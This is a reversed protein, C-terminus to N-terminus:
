AVPWVDSSQKPFLTELLLSAEDSSTWCDAFSYRLEELSRYGFLLQLFTLDPFAAAGGDGPKPQWPEVETLRGKEFALRLGSRYFSIKLEGTYGAVVSESLRRELSPRILDVFGPLDPVRLYWAYPHQVRPLRDGAARYAPHEGGLWFGITELTKNERKAHQEGTAQLYRMVIPTVAAWAVGPKLEFLGLLRRTGWLRNSHSLYGIAEGERTEIVRWTECTVNDASRGFLEYRWLAEDRLCVLRYRKSSEACLQMLFPLDAETAPRLRYSEDEGDKLRPVDPLYGFRGGGLDLAMEYGFQRYYWPIGTIAQVREGREASWQHVVEFQARVLGRNRYDPDTGVLEPRGVGFPIGDYTWTQSILNLSSVIKGARTDEVITFDGADFTPHNGKLLDRTWAAVPEFPQDPGDDSHIRANFAALAVADAPMSRRLILGDGMERLVVRGEVMQTTMV